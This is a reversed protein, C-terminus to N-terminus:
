SAPDGRRLELGAMVLWIAQVLVVAGFGHVDMRLRGSFLAVLVLAAAVCGLIGTARWLLRTRLIEMPWVGIAISTAAVFVRDFAQNLQWNFTALVRNAPDAEALRALAPALLGSSTAALLAAVMAMLYFALALDAAAGNRSLRRTLAFGGYGALPLAAIALTHVALVLVANATSTPHFLMTVLGMAAGAVMAWGGLREREM